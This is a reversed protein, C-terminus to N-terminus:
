VHLLVCVDVKGAVSVREAQGSGVGPLESGGGGFVAGDCQPPRNNNQTYKTYTHIHTKPHYIHNQKPPPNATPPQPQPPPTLYPHTTYVCMCARVCVHIYYMYMLYCFVCRLTQGLCVVGGGFFREPQTNYTNHTYTHHTHIKKLFNILIHISVRNVYM